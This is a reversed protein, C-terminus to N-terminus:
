SSNNLAQSPGHRVGPSYHAMPERRQSPKLPRLIKKEMLKSFAEARSIMFDARAEAQERRRDDLLRQKLFEAADEPAHRRCPRGSYRRGTAGPLLSNAFIPCTPSM